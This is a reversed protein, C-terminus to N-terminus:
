YLLGFLWLPIRNERGCEMGDVAYLYDPNVKRRSVGDEIRFPLKGNVLFHINKEGKNLRNDKHLSNYFFTECIAQRDTGAPHMPYMLNTNHMYVKAPKKPFEEGSAYLLNILRADKLYKLYNVVTARSTQIEKSLQSVNPVAPAGVALLYLLKRVKPLYTLEIQKLFLIDVEMMMNITKILNESFNRKELFFPYFGHHLYDKFYALPKVTRCIDSAIEEHDDLIQQLTFSPIGAGSMLNLYERFSFGRLNYSDALGSLVPNEEKLRMVSSGTFIIQLEPFYDHCYKLESSWEPYKFVQDLLLTRGGKSRFEDAFECLTRTTFYLHNLNVYLCSRDTGFKEKAYQLLFTTKGVGRSGKIGILRRNWDIEKMLERKVPSSVHEVLYRHTRFFAEM